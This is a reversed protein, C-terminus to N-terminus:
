LLTIIHQILFYVIPIFVAPLLDGVRIKAIDLLNLGIGLIVVGGVASMENILEDTLYPEVRIGIFVILGQYILVPISSFIVGYGLTATFVIATVGDLIAKIFLMTYDGKVGAEISGIIAMTGVCYVLTALVFGKAFGGEKSSFRNEIRQGLKDLRLEIQLLAGIGGGIVLSLVLLLIENTMMAYTMGIVLVALGVAQMVVRKVHQPLGHHLFLGILGGIIIAIVNVLVGIM